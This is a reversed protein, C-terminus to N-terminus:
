APGGTSPIPRRQVYGSRALASVQRSAVSVDVGAPAALCSCRQEGDRELPLLLLAWGFSSLDGYLDAAMRSGLHEATRVLRAVGATLRISTERTLQM